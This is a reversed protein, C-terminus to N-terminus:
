VFLLDALQELDPVRLISRDRVDTLALGVLLAAPCTAAAHLPLTGVL